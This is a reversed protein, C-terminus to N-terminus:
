HGGDAAETEGYPGADEVARGHKELIADLERHIEVTRQLAKYLNRCSDVNLCRITDDRAWRYPNISTCDEPCFDEVECAISIKKM